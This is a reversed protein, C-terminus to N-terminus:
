KFSRQQQAQQLHSIKSSYKKAKAKDVLISNSLSARIEPALSEERLKPAINPKASVVNIGKLEKKNNSTSKIINKLVAHDENDTFLSFNPKADSM